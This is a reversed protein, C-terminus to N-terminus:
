KTNNWTIRALFTRIEMPKLTIELDSKGKLVSKKLSFRTENLDRDAALNTERLSTIEFLTFM